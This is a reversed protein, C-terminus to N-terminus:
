KYFLKYIIPTQFTLLHLPEFHLATKKLIGADVLVTNMLVLLFIFFVIALRKGGGIIEEGNQKITNSVYLTYSFFLTTYKNEHTLEKIDDPTFIETPNETLILNNLIYCIEDIEEDTFLTINEDMDSDDNESM